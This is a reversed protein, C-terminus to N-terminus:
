VILEVTHQHYSLHAQMLCSIITRLFSVELFLTTLSLTVRCFLELSIKLYYM